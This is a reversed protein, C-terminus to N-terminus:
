GPTRSIFAMYSSPVFFLIPFLLLSSPFTHRSQFFPVYVADGFPCVLNLGLELGESGGLPNEPLRIGVVIFCRVDWMRANGWGVMSLGVEEM